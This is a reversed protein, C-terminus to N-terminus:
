LYKWLDRSFSFPGRADTKVQQKGTGSLLELLLFWTLDLLWDAGPQHHEPGM